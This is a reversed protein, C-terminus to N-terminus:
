PLIRYRACSGSTCVGAPNYTVGCVTAGNETGPAEAWFNPTLVTPIADRVAPQAEVADEIATEVARSGAAGALHANIADTVLTIQPIPADPNSVRVSTFDADVHDFAFRNVGVRVPRYYAKVHLDRVVGNLRRDLGLCPVSIDVEGISEFRVDGLDIDLKLLYPDPGGGDPVLSATVNDHIVVPDSLRFRGQVRYGSGVQAPAIFCRGNSTDLDIEFPETIPLSVNLGDVLAQPRSAEYVYSQGFAVCPSVRAPAPTLEGNAGGEEPSPAGYCGVMAAVGLAVRVLSVSRQSSRHTNM